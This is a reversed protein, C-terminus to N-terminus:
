PLKWASDRGQEQPELQWAAAPSSLELKRAVLQACHKLTTLDRERLSPNAAQSFCCLTGYTSGDPLVIPTSLHAGIRFPVAPPQLEAPLTAVDTVLGPMRGDVVRQCWSEELPNADGPRLVPADANRDVFRFVRKGDVFESVFVADMRLRERLVRLVDSVADDLLPDASDATAVLLESVIVTLDKDDFRHPLSM